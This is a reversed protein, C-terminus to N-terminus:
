TIFRSNSMLERRAQCRVWHTWEFLSQKVAPEYLLGVTIVQDGDTRVTACVDMKAGATFFSNDRGTEGLTLCLVLLQRHFGEVAPEASSVAAFPSIRSVAPDYASGAAFANM